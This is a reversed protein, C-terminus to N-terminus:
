KQLVYLRWMSYGPLLDYHTAISFGTHYFEQEIEERKFLFRNKLHKPKKNGLAQDRKRRRRAKYNGDVWLSLLVNKRTVRHLEEIIKRRKEADGIHHLLRMCFITDVSSDALNINYASTHLLEIQAHMKEPCHEIAVKLMDISSDAAIVKRNEKETLLPWFRGAGCPLDLIIQSEGVYNLAKRSLDRERWDSLMRSWNKQHKLHYSLAHDYNYKHAFTDKDIFKEAIM